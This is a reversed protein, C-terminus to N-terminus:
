FTYEFKMYVNDLSTMQGVTTTTSGYLEYIGTEVTLDDVPMFTISFLGMYASNTSVYSAFNISNLADCFNNVNYLGTLGIKLKDNLFKKELRLILYDELRNPGSNGAEQFFGHNYQFNIYWSDAFTKDFGITYKVYAQNSIAVQSQINTTNFNTVTNGGLTASNVSYNVVSTDQEGPFTVAAEGWLLIFGLDKSFDFGIVQERYYGLTYDVGQLSLNTSIAELPNLPNLITQVSQNITLSQVYPIDNIRNIYCLSLDFGGLTMSLKAGINFNSANLAPTDATGNWTMGSTNPEGMGEGSAINSTIESQMENEFINNMRAVQAFPEYVFQINGNVAPVAYKLNVAVAGIKKGYDLPDSFDNANLLDTPNLKDATGWAIRQKGAYLDLNEFIFDRYTFYAQDLSIEIPEISYLTGLEAANLINSYSVQGIPNNYYRIGLQAMGYLNNNAQEFKLDGNVENFLLDGNSVSIRTETSFDCSINMGDAYVFSSVALVAMTIIIRKM